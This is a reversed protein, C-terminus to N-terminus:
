FREIIAEGLHSRWFHTTEYALRMSREVEDVSLKGIGWYRRVALVFLKDLDHGQCIQWPDHGAGEATTLETRLVASTVGPKAGAALIVNILATVDISLSAKKVIKSHDIKKFALGLDQQASILRLLGIPQALSILVARIADSVKDLDEGPSVTFLKKCKQSSCIEQVVKNLSPSRIHEVDMDHSDTLLVLEPHHLGLIRDFDADVVVLLWAKCEEINIYNLTDLTVAKGAGPVVDALSRLTTRLVRRDKDGEVLVVPRPSPQAKRVMMVSAAISEGSVFQDIQSM